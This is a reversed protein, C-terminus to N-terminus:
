CIAAPHCEGSDDNGHAVNSGAPAVTATVNIGPGSGDAPGFGNGNAKNGKLKAANGNVFLGGWGNGAVTSTKVSAGDGNVSIGYITNGAGISSSVSAASGAVIFGTNGNEAATSSAISVHNGEVDLGEQTNGAVVVNSVTTYDASWFRIGASYNRVVGNTITVHDYGAPDSIGYGTGNGRLTHGKLDITIGAAGIGIGIGACTLDQTLVADTNVAQGCATIPMASSGHSPEAAVFAAGAVLATAALTM